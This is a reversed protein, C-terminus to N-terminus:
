ATRTYTAVSILVAILSTVPARFREYAIPGPLVLVYSVTGLFGLAVMRHARLVWAGRLMMALGITQALLMGWWLGRQLSTLKSWREQGIIRTAADWERHIIERACHIVADELIGPPWPRSTLRIHLVRYIGPEMHRLTGLAHSKAWATPHQRLITRAIWYVQRNATDLERASLSEWPRNWAFREATEAVIQGFAEEWEASWPIAHEDRITLLTAPASVRSVNGEFATSLFPRGFVLTNRIIWPALVALYAGAALGAHRWHLSSWGFTRQAAPKERRGAQRRDHEIGNQARRLMLCALWILPLFQVNPKCLVCAGALLGLSLSLMPPGIGSTASPHHAVLRMSQLLVLLSCAILFSLLTETLLENVLRIQTPNLAYLLAALYGSRHSPTPAWGLTTATQAALAFTCLTTMGDLLAQVTVVTRPYPNLARRILLLSFPYLPTRVSDPVFPAQRRLSFGNGRDLNLALRHYGWADTSGIPSEPPTSHIYLMRTSVALM